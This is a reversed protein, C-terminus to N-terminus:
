YIEACEQTDKLINRYVRSKKLYIPVEPSVSYMCMCQIYLVIGIGLDVTSSELICTM